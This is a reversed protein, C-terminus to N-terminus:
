LDKQGELVKERLIASISLAREKALDAKPGTFLKDITSVFLKDWRKFHKENLPRIHHLHRHLNMPNGKYSGTCLIINEWFDYMVALHYSMNVKALDTFIYALIKDHLVKSYFIDVLLEIDARGRIDEKM